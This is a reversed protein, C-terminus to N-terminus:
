VWSELFSLKLYPVSVSLLKKLCYLLLSIFPCELIYGVGQYLVVQLMNSAKNRLYSFCPKEIKLGNWKLPTYFQQVKKDWLYMKLGGYRQLTILFGLACLSFPQLM